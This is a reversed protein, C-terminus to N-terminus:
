KNNGTTDVAQANASKTSELQQKYKKLADVINKVVENQGNDSNLYEEEEKNSLFGTEVLISPM